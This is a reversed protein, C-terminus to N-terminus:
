LLDSVFVRPKGDLQPEEEDVYNFLVVRSTGEDLLTVHGFPVDKLQPDESKMIVVDRAMLAGVGDGADLDVEAGASGVSPPWRVSLAVQSNSFTPSIANTYGVVSAMLHLRTPCSGFRYIVSHSVPSSNHSHPLYEFELGLVAYGHDDQSDLILQRVTVKDDSDTHTNVGFGHPMIYPCSLAYDMWSDWVWDDPEGSSRVRQEWAPDFESDAEAISPIHTHLASRSFDVVISYNRTSVLLRNYPLLAIHQTHDHIRLVRRPFDHAGDQAQVWDVAIVRNSDPDSLFIAVTDGRLDGGWLALHTDIYLARVRSAVLRGDAVTVRYISVMWSTQHVKRCTGTVFTLVSYDQLVHPQFIMISGSYPSETPSPILEYRTPISSDSAAATCSLNYYCASGDIRFQVLWRGGPVIYILKCIDTFSNRLDAELFPLGTPPQLTLADRKQWARQASIWRKFIVELDATSYAAMPLELCHLPPTTPYSNRFTQIIQVWLAKAKTINNCLKSVRRISYIDKWHCRKAIEFIVDESLEACYNPLSASSM